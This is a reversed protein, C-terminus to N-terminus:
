GDHPPYWQISDPTTALNVRDQRVADASIIGLLVRLSRESNVCFRLAGAKKDVVSNFRAECQDYCDM